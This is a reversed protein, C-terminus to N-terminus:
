GSLPRHRWRAVLRHITAPGRRRALGHHGPRWGAVVDLAAARAPEPAAPLRGALVDCALLYGDSTPGGPARGAAWGGVAERWAPGFGAALEPWNVALTRARKDLLQHRVAAVREPDLDAPVPGNLVLARVLASQLAALGTGAPHATM